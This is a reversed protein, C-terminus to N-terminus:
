AVPSSWLDLKEPVDYPCSALVWAVAKSSGSLDQTKNQPCALTMTNEPDPDHPATVQVM